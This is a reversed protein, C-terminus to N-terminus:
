RYIGSAEAGAMMSLVDFAVVPRGWYVTAVVIAQAVGATQHVSRRDVDGRVKARGDEGLQDLAQVLLVEDDDDGGEVVVVEVDEGAEGVVVRADLEADRFLEGGGLEFEMVRGIAAGESDRQFTLFAKPCLAALRDRDPVAGVLEVDRLVDQAVLALTGRDPGKRQRRLM